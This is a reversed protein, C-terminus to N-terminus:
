LANGQGPETVGVGRTDLAAFRVAGTGDGLKDEVGLTEGDLDRLIVGEEHLVSLPAHVEHPGHRRRLEAAAEPEPLLHVLDGVEQVAAVHVARVLLVHLVDPLVLSTQEPSVFRIPGLSLPAEQGLLSLLALVLTLDLLVLLCCLVSLAKDCTLAHVNVHYESWSIKYGRSSSCRLVSWDLRVFSGNCPNTQPRLSPSLSAWAATARM